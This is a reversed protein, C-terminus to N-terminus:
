GLSIRLGCAYLTAGDVFREERHAYKAAEPCGARLSIQLHHGIVPSVIRSRSLGRMPLDPDIEM